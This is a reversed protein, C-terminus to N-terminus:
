GPNYDLRLRLLGLSRLAALRLKQQIVTVYFEDLLDFIKDVTNPNQYLRVFTESLEDAQKLTPMMEFSYGLPIPLNLYDLIQRMTAEYNSTLEEYSVKLYNTNNNALCQNWRKYNITISKMARHIKRRNYAINVPKKTPVTENKDKPLLWIKTKSAMYLSIAQRLM